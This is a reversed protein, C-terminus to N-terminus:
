EIILLPEDFEVPQADTVLIKLIKGARPAVIPNMTKMAEVILVTQGENVQSGERAFPDAGPSPSLYVTGVMPSKVAGPHTATSAAPAPAAQPATAPAAAAAAPAPVYAVAGGQRSVRLRVADKEIEIETLGTEELIGALERIWAAELGHEKQDKKDSM